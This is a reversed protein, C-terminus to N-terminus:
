NCMRLVWQTDGNESDARPLYHSNRLAAPAAGGRGGCLCQRCYAKSVGSAEVKATAEQVYNEMMFSDSKDRWESYLTLGWDPSEFTGPRDSM